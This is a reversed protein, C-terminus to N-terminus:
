LVSSCLGATLWLINMLMRSAQSALHIAYKLELVDLSNRNYIKAPKMETLPLSSKRKTMSISLATTSTILILAILLLETQYLSWVISRLNWLLYLMWRAKWLLLMTTALLVILIIFYKKQGKLLNLIKGVM